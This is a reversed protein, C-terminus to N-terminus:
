VEAFKVKKKKRLWSFCTAIEPDVFKSKRNRLSKGCPQRYKGTWTETWIVGGRLDKGQGGVLLTVAFMKNWTRWPM